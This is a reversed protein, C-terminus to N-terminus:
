KDAHDWLCVGFCQLVNDNHMNLCCAQNQPLAGEGTSASWQGCRREERGIALSHDHASEINNNVKEEHCSPIPDLATGSPALPICM